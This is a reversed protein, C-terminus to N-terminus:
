ARRRRLVLLSVGAIAAALAIWPALIALKNIPYATGGVPPTPPPPTGECTAIVTHNSDMTVDLTNDDATPSADVEWGVFDCTSGGEATLTVETGCPFTFTENGGAGVEDSGTDWELSIPCCGNSSVTLNYSYTAFNATITLNGSVVITTPNVSGTLNGSWGVFYWCANIPTANVTVNTGCTYPGTENVSVLGAGVPNTATSLTCQGPGAATYNVVVWVATCRSDRDAGSDASRLSVGAQLANIEAWTWNSGTSPNTLYTTSYDAFSTTLNVATGFYNNGHTRIVTRASPQLASVGGQRNDEMWVTVSTINGTLSLDSLEYLDTAYDAGTSRVYSTMDDAV